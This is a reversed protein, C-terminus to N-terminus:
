VHLQLESLLKLLLTLILPPVTIVDINMGEDVSVVPAFSPFTELHCLKVSVHSRNGETPTCAPLPTHYM